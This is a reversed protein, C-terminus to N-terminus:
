AAEAKPAHLYHAFAGSKAYQDASAAPVFKGFRLKFEDRTWTEGEVQFVPFLHRQATFAPLALYRLDLRTIRVKQGRRRFLALEPDSLLGAALAAEVSGLELKSRGAVPRWAHFVGTMPSDKADPEAYLQTKAGAGAVPIGDIAYPFRITATGAGAKIVKGKDDLQAWQDLAVTPKGMEEAVLKAERLLGLASAAMREMRPAPLEYITEDGIKRRELGEWPREEGKFAAAAAADRVFLGGSAEFFHVEGRPGGFVPGFPLDARRLDKLGFHRSLLDITPQREDLSPSRTEVLLLTRPVIPLSVAIDLEEIKISM